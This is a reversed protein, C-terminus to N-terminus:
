QRPCPPACDGPHGPEEVVIGESPLIIVRCITEEDEM